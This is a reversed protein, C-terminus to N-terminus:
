HRSSYSPFPRCGVKVTSPADSPGDLGGLADLPHQDEDGSRETEDDTQFSTREHTDDETESRAQPLSSLELTQEPEAAAPPRESRRPEDEGGSGSLVVMDDDLSRGRAIGSVSPGDDDDTESLLATGRDLNNHRQTPSLAGHSRALARSKPGVTATSDYGSLASRGTAPVVTSQSLYHATSPPPTSTYPSSAAAHQQQRPSPPLNEDDRTPGPRTKAPSHAITSDADTESFSPLEAPLDPLDPLSQQDLRRLERLVRSPTEPHYM